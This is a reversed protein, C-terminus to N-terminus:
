SKVFKSTSVGNATFVKIVYTGKRFDSVHTIYEAFTGTANMQGNILVRGSLDTIEIRANGDIKGEIEITLEDIVPNPYVSIENPFSPEEIGLTFGVSFDFRHHSGFDGPFIEIYSGGVKRLRFAGATEGEVQSSYWFSLGDDDTDTLVISYCGPALDFTDKYQTNNTLGGREFILEGAGDFLEYYNESAKNNTTFWVFFPGDIMEPADFKSTNVSNQVYDDNGFSGNVNRVYATFKMNQDLDTWWSNSTVPIEVIEEEMFGLNGTWEYNINDGYTIWCQITCSTLPEAGTNRLVVRPNSCTPNWKRYYEYNSPNLIESIAADNQFNPASYSILDFAARYNGGGQAQDFSPVQNIVYDLAVSDGPTVFPTLEFEYEKVKDGPCWGERAYPWTGGQGILPNNGCDEEEFIDWEFRTVGDVMMAHDNSVWECCAANGVQAHGSMRTKIKFGGSTDSLLIKKEALVQDEAMAAFNYSRFDSWIPERKHVERPPTGEIFAFSLDLLEQTNHAALDVVGNLYDQYDTVDYIWAFGNPGLDFQIGYPTIYRAIEVDHIIEFPLQYYTIQENDLLETTAYDISSIIVGSIDTKLEAGRPAGIFANTIEFHRDINQFEYIIEPEVRSDKWRLEETLSSTVDGTGFAIKMRGVESDIGSLPTESFDFMGMSSPMLLYNNPSLDKAMPINDFTYALKLDSWNPHSSNMSKNYWDAITAADLAATFIQFEDIKGKWSNGLNKNAGIVLRHLYGVSKTLGTGSHWLSGDRYIFMEGTGQSKVFTWHHWEDDIGASSMDADIRDYASGAGCDWYLRSNSWPMHINIVRQNLTDYAELLSTNAGTNGGGKVWLSITLDDGMDLDSMELLAHNSGDFELVGNKASYNLAAGDAIDEIEFELQNSAPVSQDFSFEVLLNDTGNWNFPQYFFFENEGVELANGEIVNRNFDYVPTFGDNHFNSLVSENTEKIRILPQLLQGDNVIDSVFLSLSQLDGAGIGAATLESQTIIMQYKGGFSNLDFPYMASSTSTQNLNHNVLVESARNHQLVETSNKYSYGWPQYDYPSVSSYNHLYRVSDVRVSDFIGTHDFVRTYTLYDWEGCNYGDWTTLPSCKLKYYMLVKEFKKDNLEEPFTFDARRSTISDFTFTQVWTTDQANVNLSWFLPIAFILSLIRNTSM